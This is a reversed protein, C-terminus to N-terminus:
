YHLCSGEHRLLGGNAYSASIRKYFESLLFRVVECDNKLGLYNKIEDFIEAQNEDLRVILCRM